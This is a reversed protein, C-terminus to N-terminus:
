LCKEDFLVLYILDEQILFIYCGEKELYGRYM